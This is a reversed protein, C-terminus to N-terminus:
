QLSIKDDPRALRIVLGLTIAAEIIGEDMAVIIQRFGNKSLWRTRHRGDMMEVMRGDVYGVILSFMGYKDDPELLPFVM